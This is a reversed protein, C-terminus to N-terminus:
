NEVTITVFFGANSADTYKGDEGENLLYVKCVADYVGADLDVDLKFPPLLAGVPLVGTTYIVEGTDRLLVECRIPKTNNPSNGLVADQTESSGDHFTWDTNMYTEFYGDDVENKMDEMIQQYNGEDMVYSETKQEKNLALFVATMVAATLLVACCVIIITTKKKM